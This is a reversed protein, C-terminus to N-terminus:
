QRVKGTETDILEIVEQFFQRAAVNKGDPSLALEPVSFVRNPLKGVVKGTTNDIVQIEGREEDPKLVFRGDTSFVARESLKAGLKGLFKGTGVDWELTALGPSQQTWLRKGDPSFRALDMPAQAELGMSVDIE